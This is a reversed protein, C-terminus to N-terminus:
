SCVDFTCGDGEEDSGDRVADGGSYLCGEEVVLEIQVVPENLALERGRRVSALEEAALFEGACIDHHAKGEIGGVASTADLLFIEGLRKSVHLFHVLPVRILPGRLLDNLGLPLELRRQSQNNDTQKNAQSITTL